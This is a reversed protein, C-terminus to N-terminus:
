IEVNVEETGFSVFSKEKDKGRLEKEVRPDVLNIVFRGEIKFFNCM